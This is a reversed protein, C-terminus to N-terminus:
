ARQTSNNSSLKPRNTKALTGSHGLTQNTCEETCLCPTCLCFLSPTPSHFSLLALPEHVLDFTYFPYPPNFLTYGCFLLFILLPQLVLLVLALDFGGCTSPTAQSHSAVGSTNHNWPSSLTTYHDLVQFLSTDLHKRPEAPFITCECQM